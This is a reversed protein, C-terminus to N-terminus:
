FDIVNQTVKVNESNSLPIQRRELLPFSSFKLFEFTLGRFLFIQVQIFKM